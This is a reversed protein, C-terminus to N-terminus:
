RGTSQNMVEKEGIEEVNLSPQADPAPTAERRIFDFLGDLSAFGQREGTAASQLSARWCDGVKGEQWVRLLYSRYAVSEEPNPSSGDVAEGRQRVLWQGDAMWGVLSGHASRGGLTLLVHNKSLM